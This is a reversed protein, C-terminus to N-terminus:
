TAKYSFIHTKRVKQLMNEGGKDWYGPLEKSM